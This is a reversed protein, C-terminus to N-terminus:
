CSHLAFRISHRIVESVADLACCSACTNCDRGAPTIKTWSSGLSRLMISIDRVSRGIRQDLWPAGRSAECAVTVRASARIACVPDIKTVADQPPRPAETTAGQWMTTALTECNTGSRFVTSALALLCPLSSCVENAHMMLPELRVASMSFIRTWPACPGMRSTTTRCAPEYSKPAYLCLPCCNEVFLGEDAILSQVFNASLSKPFDQLGIICSGSIKRVTRSLRGM